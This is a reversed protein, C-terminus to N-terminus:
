VSKQDFNKEEKSFPMLTAENAQYITLIRTM